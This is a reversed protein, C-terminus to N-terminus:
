RNLKYLKKHLDPKSMHKNFVQGTNGKEWQKLRKEKTDPRLLPYLEIAQLHLKKEMYKLDLISARKFLQNSM